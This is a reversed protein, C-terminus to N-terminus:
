VKPKPLDNNRLLKIRTNSDGVENKKLVMESPTLKEVIYFDSNTWTDDSDPEDKLTIDLYVPNYNDPDSVSWDYVKELIPNDAKSIYYTTLTGWSFTHENQTTFYYVHTYESSIPSVVEWQGRILKTNMVDREEDCSNLAVTFLSSLLLLISKKM